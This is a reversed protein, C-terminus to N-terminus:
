KKAVTSNGPPLFHIIHNVDILKVWKKVEEKVNSIFLAKIKEALKGSALGNKQPKIRVFQETQSKIASQPGAIIRPFYINKNGDVEEDLQGVVELILGITLELFPAPLFNKEGKIFFSGKSLYEGPNPSKTM